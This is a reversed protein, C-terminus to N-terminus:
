RRPLSLALLPIGAVNIMVIPPHRLGLIPLLTLAVCLGRWFAM